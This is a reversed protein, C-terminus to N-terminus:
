QSSSSPPVANAFTVTRNYYRGFPSNLDVQKKDTSFYESSQLISSFGFISDQSIATYAPPKDGWGEDTSDTETSLTATSTVISPQQQQQEQPPQRQQQQQWQRASQSSKSIHTTELKKALTEDPTSFSFSGFQSILEDTAIQNSNTMLSHFLRRTYHSSSLFLPARKSRKKGKSPHSLM